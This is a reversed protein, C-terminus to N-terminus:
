WTSGNLLARVRVFRLMLSGSLGMVVVYLGSTFVSFSNRYLCRCPRMGRQQVRVRVRALVRVRLSCRGAHPRQTAGTRARFSANSLWISM